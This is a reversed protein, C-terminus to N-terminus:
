ARAYIIVNHCRAESSGPNEYSHPQDAIFSTSDGAELDFTSQGVKIRVQGSLVVLIERTGAAHAEAPYASRASLRLEYMEVFPTGGAPTLPRSEFRGDPSRLVRSDARRLIEGDSRGGDIIEAFPLGLGVAIKWLVGLTPNSKLTEIQSLAARSVGSARSLEDLSLGRVSRETRLRQAVKRALEAAGVDDGPPATGRTKRAPASHATPPKAQKSVSKGVPPM